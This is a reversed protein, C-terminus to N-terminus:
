SVLVFCDHFHLRLLSAAMRPDGSVAQQVGAFVIDEAQPCSNQYFKLQLTPISSVVGNGNGNGNDNGGDLCETTLGNQVNAAALSLILLLDYACALLVIVAM